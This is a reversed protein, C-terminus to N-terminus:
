YPMPKLVGDSQQNQLTGIMSQTAETITKGSYWVFNYKRMRYFTRFDTAYTALDPRAKLFTDIATSDFAIGSAENFNGKIITDRLTPAKRSQTKGDNCGIAIFLIAAVILFSKVNNSPKM